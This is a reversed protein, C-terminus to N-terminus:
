HEAKHGTTNKNPTRRPEEGSARTAPGPPVVNM